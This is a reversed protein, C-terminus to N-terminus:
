ATVAPTVGSDHASARAGDTGQAAQRTLRVKGEFRELQPLLSALLEEIDRFLNQIRGEFYHALVSAPIAVALGGFTNVLATYIGNALYESRDAGVPLHSTVFFCEIIGAVTGLLGLLPAVTTALNITRVNRYMKSAERDCAERATHEVESHPRGVKLLVSRLVSATASPHQSTLQYAARPDLGGPRAALQTLGQVLKRPIVKNRRLGLLREFGLAVVLFSLATIPYMLLGSNLWLDLLNLQPDAPPTAAAPENKAPTPAEDAALSELFRQEAPDLAAPESKKSDKKGSEKKGTSTKSQARAVTATPGALALAAVLLLIVCRFWKASASM